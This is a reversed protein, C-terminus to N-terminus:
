DVVALEDGLSARDLDGTVGALHAKRGLTFVYTLFLGLALVGISVRAWTPLPSPTVFAEIVGAIFFVPILGLAIGVATRGEAAFSALRTRPGPEIWSWFLRLGVGGAVFIATLELLGHPAILGWFLAGRDNAHMLSGVIAVNAVNQWLVWIVPFGFVGFIICQAAVWANNIFVLSGFSVPPNESYYSEFDANVLQQVEATSILTNEIVPNYVLWAGLAVAVAFNVLAVTIWWRRMRYLAAPFSATFFEGAAAIGKGSPAVMSLRANSILVSLRSVMAADPSSSRVQSLDTSTQAYEALLEDTQPGTLRRLRSLERLRAWGARRRTILADLDVDQLTALPPPPRYPM